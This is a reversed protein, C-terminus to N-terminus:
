IHFAQYVESLRGLEAIRGAAADLGYTERFTHPGITLPGSQRNLSYPFFAATKRVEAEPMKLDKYPRTMQNAYNCNAEFEYYLWLDKAPLLSVSTLQGDERYHLNFGPHTITPSDPLYSQSLHIKSFHWTEKAGWIQHEGVVIQYVHEPGGSDKSAAYYWAVKHSGRVLKAGWMKAPSTKALLWDPHGAVPIPLKRYELILQLLRDALKILRDKGNMNSM